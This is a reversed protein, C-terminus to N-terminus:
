KKITKQNLLAERKQELEKRFKDTINKDALIKDIQKIKNM